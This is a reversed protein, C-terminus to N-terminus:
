VLLCGTKPRLRQGSLQYRPRNMSYYKFGSAFGYLCIDEKKVWSNKKETTGTLGVGSADSPFFQNAEKVAGHRKTVTTVKLQLMMELLQNM